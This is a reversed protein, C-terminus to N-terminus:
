DCETTGEDMGDDGDGKWMELLLRKRFALVRM